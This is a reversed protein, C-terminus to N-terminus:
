FLDLSSYCRNQLIYELEELSKGYSNIMLTGKGGKYDKMSSVDEETHHLLEDKVQKSEYIYIDYHDCCQDAVHTHYGRQHLKDQLYSAKSQMGILM